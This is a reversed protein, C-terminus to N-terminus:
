NLVSKMVDILKLSKCIIAFVKASYYLELVRWAPCLVFVDFDMKTKLSSIQTQFALIRFGDPLIKQACVAKPPHVPRYVDIEQLVSFDNVFPALQM